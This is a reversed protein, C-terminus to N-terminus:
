THNELIMVPVGHSSLTAKGLSHRKNRKQICEKRRGWPWSFLLVSLHVSQDDVLQVLLSPKGRCTGQVGFRGLGASKPTVASAFAQVWAHTAFQGEICGLSLPTVQEALFSLWRRTVVPWAVAQSNFM